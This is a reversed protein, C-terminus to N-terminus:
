ASPQIRFMYHGHTHHGDVAIVSWYVHYLGPPLTGVTTELLRNHSGAAVHGHGESVVQNHTNKVTLSSFLAELGSDFWIRIHHPAAKLHAGVQPRSRVPFAHASATLPLCLAWLLAFTAKYPSPIHM